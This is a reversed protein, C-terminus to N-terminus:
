VTCSTAPRSNASSSNSSTESEKQMTRYLDLRSILLSATVFYTSTTTRFLFGLYFITSPVPTTSQILSHVKLCKHVHNGIFSGGHYAQRDVGIEQLSRKIAQVCPGETKLLKNDKLRHAEAKQISVFINM